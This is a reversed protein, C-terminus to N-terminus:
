NSLQRGYTVSWTFTGTFTGTPTTYPTTLKDDFSFEQNQNANVGIGYIVDAATTISLNQTVTMKGVVSAYTWAGFPIPTIRVGPATLNSTGPAGRQSYTSAYGLCLYCAASGDL